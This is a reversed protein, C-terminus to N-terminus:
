MNQLGMWITIPFTVLYVLVQTIMTVVTFLLITIYKPWKLQWSKYWLGSLFTGISSTISYLIYVIITFLVAELNTSIGRLATVLNSEYRLGWGADQFGYIGVTPIINMLIQDIVVLMLTIAIIAVWIYLRKRVSAEKHIVTLVLHLIFVTIFFGNLASNAVFEDPNCTADIGLDKAYREEETLRRAELCLDHYKHSGSEIAYVISFFTGFLLIVLGIIVTKKNRTLTKMLM